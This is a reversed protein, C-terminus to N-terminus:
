VLYHIVVTLMRTADSEDDGCDDCGQYYTSTEEQVLVVGRVPAPGDYYPAQWSSTLWPPQQSQSKSKRMMPLLQIAAGDMSNAGCYEHFLDGPPGAVLQAFAPPLLDYQFQLM